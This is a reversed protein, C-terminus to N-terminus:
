LSPHTVQFYSMTRRVNKTFGFHILVTIKRRDPSGLHSQTLDLAESQCMGYRNEKSFSRDPDRIFTNLMSIRLMLFGKQFIFIISLAPDSLYKPVATPNGKQTSQITSAINMLKFNTKTLLIQSSWADHKTDPSYVREDYEDTYASAKESQLIPRRYKSPKFTCIEFRQCLKRRVQSHRQFRDSYHTAPLANTQANFENNRNPNKCLKLLFQTGGATQRVYNVSLAVIALM